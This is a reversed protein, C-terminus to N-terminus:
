GYGLSRTESEHQEFRSRLTRIAAVIHNNVTRSSISMVQAIEEHDLGDFRSLQIVERQRDPLQSVWQKVLDIDISLESPDYDDMTQEYEDSELIYLEMDPEQQEPKRDRLLNLSLNRVIQYLYAQISQEPNIRDRSQWLKVFADQVIDCASAKELTYRYSYRVLPAYLTRFLTDFSQRDSDKVGQALSRLQYEDM